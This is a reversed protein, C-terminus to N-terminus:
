NQNEEPNFVGLKNGKEILYNTFASCTILFYRADEMSLNSDEMLAHRIGDKSNTYEYFRTYKEHLLPNIEGNKNLKNLAKGLSSEKPAIKKAISEVMSISEKISNRYDGGPKLHKLAQNLHEQVGVLEHQESNEAVQNIEDIQTQDTIPVFEKRVIRYGSNHEVLSANLSKIFNNKLVGIKEFANSQIVEEIFEYIYDWEEYDFITKVKNFYDSHKFEDIKENFITAHIMQHFYDLNNFINKSKVDSKFRFRQWEDIFFIYFKNWLANRLKDDMGELQIKPPEYIGLRERFKKRKMSAM